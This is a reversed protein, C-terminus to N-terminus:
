PPTPLSHKCESPLVFNEVESVRPLIPVLKQHLSQDITSLAVMLWDYQASLTPGNGKSNIAHSHLKSLSEEM